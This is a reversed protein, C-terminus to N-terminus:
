DLFDLISQNIENSHTWILGHPADKIEVYKKPKIIERLRRATVDIPLIRDADGHVVMTPVDLSKLDERFDTLWATVCKLTAIPSARSAVNWSYRNVEESILKGGLLDMNYFNNLFETLFSLRDSKIASIFGDFVSQEIGDPNDDTKLLYPPISALLAAKDVRDSGYRSLYRTVEGTGMSFGVLNVDNLDLTTILKDLDATFTDYDYGTSPKSSEGFGRRDYTVVRYGADLLAREQNEWSGGNLPWGHIMVVPKGSGHDEYHLKIDKSNENDVKIFQM